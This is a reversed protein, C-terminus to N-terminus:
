KLPPPVAAANSGGAEADVDAAELEALAAAATETMPPQVPVFEAADDGSEDAERAWQAEYAAEAAAVAAALAERKARERMAIQTRLEAILQESERELAKRRAREEMLAIGAAARRANACELDNATEKRNENCRALVGERAISDEMFEEFRRPEPKACATALVALGLICGVVATGRFPEAMGIIGGFTM